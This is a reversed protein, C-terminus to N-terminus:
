QPYAYKLARHLANRIRNASHLRRRQGPPEGKGPQSRKRRLRLRRGFVFPNQYADSEDRRMSEIGVGKGREKGCWQAHLLDIERWQAPAPARPATVFSASGM